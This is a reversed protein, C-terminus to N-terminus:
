KEENSRTGRVVGELREKRRRKIKLIQIVRASCFEILQYPKPVNNISSASRIALSSCPLM